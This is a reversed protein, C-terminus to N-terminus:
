QGNAKQRWPDLMRCIAAHGADFMAAQIEAANDDLWAQRKEVTWDPRWSRLDYACWSVEAQPQDEDFDGNSAM